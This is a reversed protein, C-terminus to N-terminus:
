HRITQALAATQALLLRSLPWQGATWTDVEALGGADHTNSAM